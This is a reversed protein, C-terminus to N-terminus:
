MAPVRQAPGALSRRGQIRQAAAVAKERLRPDQSDQARELERWVSGPVRRGDMRILARFADEHEIPDDGALMEVITPVDNKVTKPREIPGDRWLWRHRRQEAGAGIEHLLQGARTDIRARERLSILAHHAAGRVERAHHRRWLHVVSRWVDADRCTNRCPCLLRLIELQAGRGAYGALRRLIEDRPPLLADDCYKLPEM